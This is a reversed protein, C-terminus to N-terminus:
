QQGISQSHLGHRDEQGLDGALHHSDDDRDCSDQEESLSDSRRLVAESKLNDEREM